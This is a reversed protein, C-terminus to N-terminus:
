SQPFYLLLINHHQKWNSIYQYSLQTRSTSEWTRSFLLLWIGWGLSYDTINGKYLSHTTCLRKQSPVCISSLPLAAGLEQASASAASWVNESDKFATIFFNYTRLQIEATWCGKEFECETCQKHCVDDHFRYVVEKRDYWNWVRKPVIM